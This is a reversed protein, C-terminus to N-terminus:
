CTSEEGPTEDRDEMSSAAVAVASSSRRRRANSQERLAQGTKLEAKEDGVESYMKTVPDYNLFRGRLHWRIFEVLCRAFVPKEKRNISRYKPQQSQIIRRFKQNGAIANIRLGRGMIVDNDTPERINPYPSPPVRYIRSFEPSKMLERLRSEIYQKAREEETDLLTSPVSQWPSPFTHHYLHSYSPNVYAYHQPYWASPLVWPDINQGTMNWLQSQESVGLSDYEEQREVVDHQYVESSRRSEVADDLFSSFADTDAISPFSPPSDKPSPLLNDYIKLEDYMENNDSLSSGITSGGSSNPLSDDTTTGAISIFIM